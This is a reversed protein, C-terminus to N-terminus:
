LGELKAHMHMRPHANLFECPDCSRLECGDKLKVHCCINLAGKNWGQPSTILGGLARDTAAVGNPGAQITGPRKFAKCPAHLLGM